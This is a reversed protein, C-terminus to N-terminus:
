KSPNPPNAGSDMPAGLMQLAELDAAGCCLTLEVLMAYQEAVARAYELRSELWMRRAEMMDLFTGRNAIWAARASRLALEGRPIIEDRYLLAQRRAADARTVVRRAETPVFLEYDSLEQEAARLKAQDREIEKRYKGRNFWPVSLRVMFLGEKFEGDGSYQRGEIGVSVEPFRQKEALRTTAVAHHVEHKMVRLRAEYTLALKQLRANFEIEPGILPLEFRPWPSDLTRALLRNLVAHEQDRQREDTVLQQSRKSRENQMRLVETQSGDGAGYRDESTSTMTRLWDFDQRGVAVTEDALAIRLVQRAIELRLMQFNFDAQAQSRELEAQAIERAARAKGWLPLGQEVGYVIDGQEQRMATSGPAGGFLLTPDQWTRVAARDAEAAEVRARAALLAPNNTRAEDALQNLFAPTVVISNTVADAATTGSTVPLELATCFSLITALFKM